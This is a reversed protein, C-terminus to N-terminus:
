ADAIWHDLLTRAIAFPPPPLFPAGPDGALAAAVEARTIWRADDLEDHDITLRDGTAAATCGIMLSSPFPWPQSALYRVGTVAIGAEEGLERAV